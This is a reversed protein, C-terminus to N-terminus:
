LAATGKRVGRYGFLRGLIELAPSDLWKLSLQDATQRNGLMYTPYPHITESLQQLGVGNRMAVAYEAIMEGGHTGLISAGLIKGSKGALVKILGVTEGEMIARDIKAFPLRYVSYKAGRTRLEDETAGVRALEPDSFTAWTVHKEDLSKPIRLIANTVAVKSMHEAMHTFQFRGTVDGSAYIHKQSTRCYQNVTVGQQTSEVGANELDLNQINPKRGIAALM